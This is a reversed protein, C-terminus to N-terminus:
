KITENAEYQPSDIYRAHINTIIEEKAEQEFWEQLLRRM